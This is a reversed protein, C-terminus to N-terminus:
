IHYVQLFLVTAARVCRLLVVERLYPWTAWCAVSQDPGVPRPEGGPEKDEPQTFRKTGVRLRLKGLELIPEEETPKKRKM